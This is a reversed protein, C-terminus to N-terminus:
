YNVHDINGFVSKYKESLRDFTPRPIQYFAKIKNLKGIKVKEPEPAELFTKYEFSNKM